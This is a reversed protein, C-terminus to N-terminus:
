QIKLMFNKLVIMRNDLPWQLKNHHSKKNTIVYLINREGPLLIGVTELGQGKLLVQPTGFLQINQPSVDLNNDPLCLRIFEFSATM